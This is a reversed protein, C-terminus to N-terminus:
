GPGHLSLRVGEFPIVVEGPTEPGPADRLPVAVLTIDLFRGDILREGVPIAALAPGLNLLFTSDPLTEAGPASATTPFFGVEGAFRPGEAPSAPSAEPHNVFVRIKVEASAPRELGLLTLRLTRREPEGARLGRIVELMAASPALRLTAPRDLAIPREAKAEVTMPDAAAAGPPPGAPAEAPRGPASDATWCAGLSAGVLLAAPWAHGQIRM